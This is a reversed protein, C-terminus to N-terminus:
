ARDGRQGDTERSNSKPFFDQLYHEATKASHRFCFGDKDARKAEEDNEDATQWARENIQKVFRTTCDRAHFHALHFVFYDRQFMFDAFRFLSSNAGTASATRTVIM